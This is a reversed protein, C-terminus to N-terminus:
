YPLALTDFPMLDGKEFSLCERFLACFICLHVKKLPKKLESGDKYIM